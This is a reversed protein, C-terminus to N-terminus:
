VKHKDGQALLSAETCFSSRTQVFNEGQSSIVRVVGLVENLQLELKKLEHSWRHIKQMQLEARLFNRREIHPTREIERLLFISNITCEDLLLQKGLRYLLDDSFHIAQKGLFRSLYSPEIGISTAIQNITAEPHKRQFSEILSRLQRKYIMAFSGGARFKCSAVIFNL